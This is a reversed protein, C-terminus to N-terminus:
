KDYDNVIKSIPLLLDSALIGRQGQESATRDAATAHIYVALRLADEASLGQARLSACIGSLLDGMGGVAMGPNGASCLHIDGGATSVSGAGKLLVAGGCYRQLQEVSSFRDEQLRTVTCNLIRGAEGPHPTCIKDSSLYRSFLKKESMINLADADLVLPKCSELAERLMQEGWANQGLGPGVVVVDARSLLPQLQHVANVGHVMVEPCCCLSATIHEPRTALTVLGAGSRLAARATLLAAGGMGSDGGVVLVHGHSGKHSSKERPPLLQQLDQRRTHKCNSPVEAYVEDPVRLADFQLEGVYDVAAGTLLGRKVGIFTVTLDARVADGLIKGTDACLGSPIDVAVVPGTFRNVQAFAEAYAGRVAGNLGTGLMADVVLEGQLETEASFLTFAMPEAQLAQWAELAEGRLKSVFSEDGMCILQVDIGRQRALQAIVFGDGGNNGPGCLVSFFAADPYADLIASFCAHGARQM